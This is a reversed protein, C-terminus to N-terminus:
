ERKATGQQRHHRCKDETITIKVPVPSPEAPVMETSSGSAIVQKSSPGEAHNSSPALDSPVSSTVVAVELSPKSLQLEEERRVMESPPKSLPIVHLSSTLASPEQADPSIGAKEAFLMILRAQIMLGCCSVTLFM